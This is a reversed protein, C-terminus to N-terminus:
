AEWANESVVSVKNAARQLCLAVIVVSKERNPSTCARLAMMDEFSPAFTSEQVAEGSKCATLALPLLGNAVLVRANTTEDPVTSVSALM